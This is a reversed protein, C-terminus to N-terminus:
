WVASVFLTWNNVAYNAEHAQESIVENLTKRSYGIEDINKNFFHSFSKCHLLKECEKLLCTCQM